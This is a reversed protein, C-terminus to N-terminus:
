DQMTCLSTEQKAGPFATGAECILVILSGFDARLSFQGLRHPRHRERQPSVFSRAQRLSVRIIKRAILDRVHDITFPIVIIV